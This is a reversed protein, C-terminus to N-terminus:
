TPLDGVLHLLKIMYGVYLFYWYKMPSVLSPMLKNSFRLYSFPKFRKNRPTNLSSFILQINKYLFPLAIKLLQNPYKFVCTYHPYVEIINIKADNVLIRKPSLETISSISFSLRRVSVSVLTQSFDYFYVNWKWVVYRTRWVIDANALNTKTYIRTVTKMGSTRQYCSKSLHLVVKNNKGNM